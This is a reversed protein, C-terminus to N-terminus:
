TLPQAKAILVRGHSMPSELTENSRVMALCVKLGAPGLM